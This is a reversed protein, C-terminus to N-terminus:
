KKIQMVEAWSSRIVARKALATCVSYFDGTQWEQVLFFFFISNIMLDPDKYEFAM